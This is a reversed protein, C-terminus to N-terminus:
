LLDFRINVHNWFFLIVTAFLFFCQLVHTMTTLGGETLTSELLNTYMLTIASSPYWVLLLRMILYVGSFEDVTKGSAM